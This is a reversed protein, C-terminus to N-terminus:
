HPKYGAAALDSFPLVLNNKVIASPQNTVATPQGIFLNREVIAPTTLAPGNNPPPCTASSPNGCSVNVFASSSSQNNDIVVNNLFHLDQNPVAYEPDSSGNDYIDAFIMLNENALNQNVATKYIVNGQVYTTGGLPFDLEYSTDGIDDTIRNYLIDNFPARTKVDHGVYADRSESNKLTFHMKVFGDFGIYMNHTSGSGDGNDYFNDFEFLLFPNPSFYAEGGPGTNATLIGQDNNHIYCRRVTINGGNAVGGSTPGAGGNSAQIRIGAADSNNPNVLAGANRLELNDIVIDHGNLVLIGKQVYTGQAYADPGADLIARGRIGRITLNNQNVVCDTRGDSHHPDPPAIYPVGHNADILVTDGNQAASVASCVTPYKGGPSVTLTAAGAISAGLFLFMSLKSFKM